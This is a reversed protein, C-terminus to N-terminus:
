AQEYLPVAERLVEERFYRSLSAPTHLHVKRGLIRSLDHDWGFFEWGPRATPEFEVLLDLDSHQADFDERLASGFLSLKSIGHAQCFEAIKGFDIRIPLDAVKVPQLM